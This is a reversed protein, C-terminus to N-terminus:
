GAQRALCDELQAIAEAVKQDYYAGMRFGKANVYSCCSLYAHGYEGQRVATVRITCWGWRGHERRMRVVAAVFSKGHAGGGIAKAEQAPSVDEPEAAVWIETGDPRKEMLTCYRSERM